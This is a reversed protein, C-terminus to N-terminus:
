NNGPYPPCFSNEQEGATKPQLPQAPQGIPSNTATPPNNFVQAPNGTLNNQVHATAQPPYCVPHQMQVGQILGSAAMQRLLYDIKRHLLTDPLGMALFVAIINVLPFWALVYLGANKYGKRSFLSHSIIGSVIWWVGLILLYVFGLFALAAAAETGNYGYM